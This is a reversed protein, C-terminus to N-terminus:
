PNQSILRRQDLLWSTLRSRSPISWIHHLVSLGVLLLGLFSPSLLYSIAAAFGAGELAAIRFVQLSNFANLLPGAPTSLSSNPLGSAPRDSPTPESGDSNQAKLVAARVRADVRARTSSNLVAAVIVAAQGLPLAAVTGPLLGPTEARKLWLVITMFAVLGGVTILAFIRCRRLAVDIEQQDEPTLMEDSNSLNM